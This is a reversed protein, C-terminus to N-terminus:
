ESLVSVVYRDDNDDRELTSDKLPNHNKDANLSNYKSWEMLYRLELHSFLLDKHLDLAGKFHNDFYRALEYPIAGSLAMAGIRDLLALWRDGFVQPEETRDESIEIKELDEAIKNFTEVYSSRAEIRHGLGSYILGLGAFIASSISILLEIEVM